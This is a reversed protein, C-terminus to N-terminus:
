YNSGKKNNRQSLKLQKTSYTRKKSGKYPLEQYTEIKSDIKKEMEEYQKEFYDNVSNLTDM